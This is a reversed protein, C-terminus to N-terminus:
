ASVEHKANEVGIMYNEFEKVTQDANYKCKWFTVTAYCADYSVTIRAHGRYAQVTREISQDSYIERNLILKKM